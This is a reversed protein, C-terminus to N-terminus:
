DNACAFLSLIVMILSLIIVILSLRQLVLHKLQEKIVM